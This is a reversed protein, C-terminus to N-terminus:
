CFNLMLLPFESTFNICTNGDNLFDKEDNWPTKMMIKKASLNFIYEKYLFFLQLYISHYNSKAHFRMNNIGTPIMM